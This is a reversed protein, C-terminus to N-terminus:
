IDIVSLCIRITKKPQQLGPYISFCENHPWKELDKREGTRSFPVSSLPLISEVCVDVGEGLVEMGAVNGCGMVM